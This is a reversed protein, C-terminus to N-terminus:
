EIFLALMFQGFAFTQLILTFMLLGFSCLLFPYVKEGVDGM